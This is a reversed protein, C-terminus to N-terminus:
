KEVQNKLKTLGDRFASKISPKMVLTMYGGVVPPMAGSMDGAMSWTVETGGAVNRYAIKASSEARSEDWIMAMDYEVGSSPDSKTFTVEGDGDKGTWSQSAGVGASKDGLTTKITPDMDHWPMWDPWRELNGVMAHITGPQADIVMSESLEYETPLVFGVVVLLAVLVVLGILVNKM